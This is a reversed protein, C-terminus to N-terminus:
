HRHASHFSRISFTTCKDAIRLRLLEYNDLYNKKIKNDRVIFEKISLTEIKEEENTYFPNSFFLLIWM